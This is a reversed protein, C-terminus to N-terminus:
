LMWDIPLISLFGVMSRSWLSSGPEKTHIIQRDADQELWIINGQEDLKLQYAFQRLDRDFAVQMRQALHPSDIVFGLETNLNASRPDFNFSGVFVRSGDVAFTKAHLSSGNSGFSNRGKAQKSTPALRRVEYIEIGANLLDKRSKAYGAHVAPVDTAEFANTLVRVKVGSQSLESFADVGVKTPVFYPSVLEVHHTPAVLINSIRNILLGDPAAKGLGKAPDDSVMRTSAWILELEGDLLKSIFPLNKLATVYANAKSNHEISTAAAGIAEREAADAKPLFDNVAYASESAWYRDFSSSVDSVVPGVSIVDLDAFLVGDTAGFYADGVNRGGIISARNDATFSKNHMRRNSRKFDTIFGTWKASRTRFPNFLRVEINAHSDLAALERDIGSTGNDDLLLRVRVGREAADLLAQMLLTGTTDGRWIYYQVDLTREAANALLVRAAFADRPNDLPYIGSEGPHSSVLPQLAKGLRTNQAEDQGLAVSEPRSTLSPLSSCGALGGTLLAFLMALWHAPLRASKYLHLPETHARM